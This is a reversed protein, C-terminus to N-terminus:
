YDWGVDKEFEKIATLAIGLQARAHNIQEVLFNRRWKIAEHRCKFYGGMRSVKTVMTGTAALILMTDTEGVAEVVNIHNSYITAQYWVQTEEVIQEGDTSPLSTTLVGSNM